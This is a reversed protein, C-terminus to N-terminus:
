HHTRHVTDVGDADVMCEANGHDATVIAVGGKARIAEIVAGVGADVAEVARVAAELVGTHGVMDGNAYNVIYVDARGEDIAEVLEDTVQPASMEPQLDYTAM